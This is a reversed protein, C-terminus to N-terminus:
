REATLVGGVWCALVAAVFGLVAAKSGTPLSSFVESSLAEGDLEQQERATAWAARLEPVSAAVTVATLGAKVWGRTACSSIFEPTASFRATGAGTVLAAVARSPTPRTIMHVYESRPDRM